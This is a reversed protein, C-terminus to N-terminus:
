MLMSATAGLPNSEEDTMHILSEEIMHDQLVFYLVMM